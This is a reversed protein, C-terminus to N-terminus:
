SRSNERDVFIDVHSGFFYVPTHRPFIRPCPCNVPSVVRISTESYDGAKQTSIVEADIDVWESSTNMATQRIKYVYRANCALERIDALSPTQSNTICRACIRNACYVALNIEPIDPDYSEVCTPEPDEHARVTVLAPNRRSVDQRELARFSVCTSRDHPVQDFTMIVSTKEDDWRLSRLAMSEKKAYIQELDTIYPQFGSLMETELITRGSYANEASRLCVQICISSRSATIQRKSRSARASGRVSDRREGSSGRAGIHEDEDDDCDMNCYRCVDNESDSLPSYSASHRTVTVNYRCNANAEVPVNYEVKVQMQGLGTGRTEVHLQRGMPVDTLAKPTIANEENFDFIHTYNQTPSTTVNCHLNVEDLGLKALSYASLAQIAAATDMAGIFAARSNRKQILWGAISDPNVNWEPLSEAGVEEDEGWEGDHQVHLAAVAAEAQKSFVLLAYATAEISSARTGSHYWFPRRAPENEDSVAWYNLGFRTTRKMESLREVAMITYEDLPDNLTLAYATKAMVLPSEIEELSEELSIILNGLLQAHDNQVHSIDKNQINILKPLIAASASLSLTVPLLLSTYSVSTLPQPPTTRALRNDLEVLSGDEGNVQDLLWDFGIDILTDHDIFAIKEAQCLTKLVLATLWTASPSDKTLAFSGDQQRYSLLRTVGHIVYAQGKAQVDPTMFESINLYLLANVAPALNGIAEEADRVTSGFLDDGNMVAHSIIDGMLDGCALIQCRETGQIVEEPMYLDIETLQKQSKTLIRNSVTATNAYQIRGQRGNPTHHSSYKGTPDLPFTIAKTVRRGEAVVHLTKEVIDREQGNRSQVDVILKVTGAVLPIVRLTESNTKRSELSAQYRFNRQGGVGESFCLGEDGHVTVTVNIPFHRYNYIGIHVMVEELRVAKYPLRVQAFFTKFTVMDLPRSVCVGGNQGVGVATFAWTTISDPFTIEQRMHGASPLKIETFLWSEPFYRRVQDLPITEEGGPPIYEVMGHGRRLDPFRNLNVDFITDVTPLSPEYAETLKVYEFIKETNRGDGIGRGLDQEALIDFMKERTLSREDRLFYVAKNVAVLGVTMNPGGYVQIETREKPQKPPPPGFGLHDLRELSLEEKCVDDNSAASSFCGQENKCMDDNTAASSFRGEEKCVDDTDIFLSDSVIESSTGTVYTRTYFYAVVRASPAAARLVEPPLQVRQRGDASRPVSDTHVLAGRSYV